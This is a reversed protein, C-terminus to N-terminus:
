RAPAEDERDDDDEDDRPSPFGFVFALLLALYGVGRIITSINFADNTWTLPQTQSTASAQYVLVIVQILTGAYLALFILWVGLAAFRWAGRPREHAAWGATVITTLYAFAAVALASVLAGLILYAITIASLTALELTAVYVVVSVVSAIILPISVLTIITMRRDANLDEEFQRVGLVGRAVLVLGFVRFVASTISVGLTGPSIPSLDDPDRAFAAIQDSWVVSAIRVGEVLVLLLIGIFLIRHTSLAGRHRALLAAGFLCTAVAPLWGMAALAISGADIGSPNALIDGANWWLDFAALLIFLWGLIPVARVSRTLADPLHPGRAELSPADDIATGAPEDV